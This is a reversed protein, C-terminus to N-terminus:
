HLLAGSLGPALQLLLVAAIVFAWALNFCNVKARISGAPPTFASLVLLVVAIVLLLVLLFLTASM